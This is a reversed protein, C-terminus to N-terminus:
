RDSGSGGIKGEELRKSLKKVNEELVDSPIFGYAKCLRVWYWLVDGLEKKIKNVDRTGDRISKKYYEAVEGAEGNLGLTLYILASGKPYIATEDTWDAYEDINM